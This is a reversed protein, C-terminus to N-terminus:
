ITSVHELRNKAKRYWVVSVGQKILANKLEIDATVVVTKAVGQLKKVIEVVTEDFPKGTSDEPIVMFKPVLNNLAWLAIRGRETRKSAISTLENIVSTTVAPVCGEMSVVLDEYKLINKAILLIISTDILAVCKGTILNVDLIQHSGM